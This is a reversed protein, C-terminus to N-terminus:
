IRDNTGDYLRQAGKIAVEYDNDLIRRDDAFYTMYDTTIVKYKDYIAFEKQISKFENLIHKGINGYGCIM